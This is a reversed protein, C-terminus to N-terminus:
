IEYVNLNKYNVLYNELVESEENEAIHFYIKDSLNKFFSNINLDDSLLNVDIVHNEIINKRNAHFFYVYKNKLVVGYFDKSKIRKAFYKIYLQQITIVTKIKVKDFNEKSFNLNALNLCYVIIEITEKRVLKIRYDFAIDDLSHFRDILACEVLQYIMSKRVRPIEMEEIFIEKGEIIVHLNSGKKLEEVKFIDNHINYKISKHLNTEYYRCGESGMIIKNSKFM